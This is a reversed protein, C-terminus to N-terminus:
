GHFLLTNNAQYSFDAQATEIYSGDAFVLKDSVFTAFQSKGTSEEICLYKLGPRLSTKGM